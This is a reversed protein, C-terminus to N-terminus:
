GDEAAFIQVPQFTIVATGGFSELWLGMQGGAPDVVGQWLLERNVRVSVRGDVVNLWIENSDPRVHPWTQFPFLAANDGSHAEWVAAYGLPSVATVWFDDDDGVVLGYLLDTEGSEYAMTLRLSYNQEPTLADLWVVDQRGAAITQPPLLREAVLEGVPKPDFTGAAILGILTVATVVLLGALWDLRDRRKEM